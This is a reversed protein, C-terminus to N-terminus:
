CLEDFYDKNLQMWIIVCEILKNNRMIYNFVSAWKMYSKEMM